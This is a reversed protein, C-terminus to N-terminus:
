FNMYSSSDNRYEDKVKRLNNEIRQGESSVEEFFRKVTEFM